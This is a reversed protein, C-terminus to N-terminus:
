PANELLRRLRACAAHAFLLTQRQRVASAVRRELAARLIEGRYRDAVVIGADAPLRDRPFDPGVAFYFWDCFPLYGPWKSDARWDALCSKVEAVAFRGRGDMGIVDVRRGSVLRLETLTRFGMSEFLRVAGRTIDATSLPAGSLDPRSGPVAHTAAQRPPPRPSGALPLAQQM